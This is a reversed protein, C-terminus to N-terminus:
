QGFRIFMRHLQQSDASLGVHVWHGWLYLCKTPPTLPAESDGFSVIKTEVCAEKEM